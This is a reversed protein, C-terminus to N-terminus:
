AGGGVANYVDVVHKIVVHTDFLQQARLKAGAQLQQRWAADQHLRQVAEVFGAIDPAFVGSRNHVFIENTGGTPM